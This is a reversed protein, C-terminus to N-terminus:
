RKRRTMIRKGKRHRTISNMRNGRKKRTKGGGAMMRLAAVAAALGIGAITICAGSPGCVTVKNEEERILRKNEAATARSAHRENIKRSNEWMLNNEEENIKRKNEEIAANAYGLTSRNKEKRNNFTDTRNRLMERQRRRETLRDQLEETSIITNRDFENLQYEDAGRNPEYENLNNKKWKV